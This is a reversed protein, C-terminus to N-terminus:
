LPHTAIPYAPPPQPPQLQPHRNPHPFPPHASLVATSNLSGFLKCPPKQYNLCVSPRTDSSHYYPQLVGLARTCHLQHQRALDLPWLIHATCRAGPRVPRKVIWTGAQSRAALLHKQLVVAEAASRQRAAQGRM